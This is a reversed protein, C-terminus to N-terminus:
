SQYLRIDHNQEMTVTSKHTTMGIYIGGDSLYSAFSTISLFCYFLKLQQTKNFDGVNLQVYENNCKRKLYVHFFFGHYKIFLQLTTELHTKTSVIDREIGRRILSFLVWSIWYTLKLQQTKNFDGVNLQVYENNYKRKLYVHFFFGHYKIFLQLTTELHTKTSM